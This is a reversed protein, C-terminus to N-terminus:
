RCGSCRPRPRGPRARAGHEAGAGDEGAGDRHDVGLRALLEAPAQDRRPAHGDRGGPGARKGPPSNPRGQTSTMLRRVSPSRWSLDLSLSMRRSWPAVAHAPRATVSRSARVASSTSMGDTLRSSAASASWRSAASRARARPQRDVPHAVVDHGAGLEPAVPAAPAPRGCRCRARGVAVRPGADLAVHQVPRPTPRCSPRGRRAARAPGCPPRARRDVDGVDEVGALLHGGLVVAQALQEGCRGSRTAPSAATSPSGVSPRMSAPQWPVMRTRSSRAPRAPGCRGATSPGCRWGGGRGPAPAGRRRRPGGAPARRSRTGRPGGPRPRRPRRPRCRPARGPRHQRDVVAERGVARRGLGLGM